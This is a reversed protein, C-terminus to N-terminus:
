LDCIETSDQGGYLLDADSHPEFGVVEGSRRLGKSLSKPRHFCDRLQRTALM